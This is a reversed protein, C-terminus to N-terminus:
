KGDREEQRERRQYKVEVFGVLFVLLWVVIMITLVIASSQIHFLVGLFPGVIAAVNASSIVHFLNMPREQTSM